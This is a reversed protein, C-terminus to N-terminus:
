VFAGNTYTADVTGHRLLRSKVAPEKQKRPVAAVINALQGIWAALLMEANDCPPAQMTRFRRTSCITCPHVLTRHDKTPDYSPAGAQM